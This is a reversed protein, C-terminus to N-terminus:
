EGMDRSLSCRGVKNTSVDLKVVNQCAMAPSIDTIYNNAVLCVTLSRLLSIKSIDSIGSGFLNLYTVAQLSLSPNSFIFNTMNICTEINM